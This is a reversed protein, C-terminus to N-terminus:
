LEFKGLSGILFFPLRFIVLCIIILLFVAFSLPIFPSLFFRLSVSIILPLFICFLNHTFFFLHFAPLLVSLFVPGHETKNGSDELIGSRGPDCVETSGFRVTYLFLPPVHLTERVLIM